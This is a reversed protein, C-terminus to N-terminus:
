SSTALIGGGIKIRNLSHRKVASVYPELTSVKLLRFLSSCFIKTLLLWEKKKGTFILLAWSFWYQQKELNKWPHFKKKVCVNKTKKVGVKKKVRARNQPKKWLKLPMQHLNKWPYKWKVPPFIFIKVPLKKKERASESSKKWPHSRSKWLFLCQAAGGRIWFVIQNQFHHSCLNTHIKLCFLLTWSYLAGNFFFPKEHAERGYSLFFIM